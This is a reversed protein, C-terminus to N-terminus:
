VVAFPLKYCASPYPECLTRCFMICQIGDTKSAFSFKGRRKHTASHWSRSIRSTPALSTLGNALLGRCDLVTRSFAVAIIHTCWFGRPPPPLRCLPRSWSPPRCSLRSHRRPPYRLRLGFLYSPSLSLRVLFPSRTLQSAQPPFWTMRMQGRDRLLTHVQWTASTSTRMREKM